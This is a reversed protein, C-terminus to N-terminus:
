GEGAESQDVGVGKHRLCRPLGDGGNELLVALFMEAGEFGLDQLAEDSADAEDDGGAAANYNGRCVAFEERLDAGHHPEVGAGLMEVLADFVAFAREELGRVGAAGDLFEVALAFGEVAFGGGDADVGAGEGVALGGFGDEVGQLLLLGLLLIM